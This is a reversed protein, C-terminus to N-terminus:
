ARSGTRRCASAKPRPAPSLRLLDQITMVRTAAVLGAETLVRVDKFAPLWKAVPDTLQLAGDEVLIMAAVSSLPKTMSYIRFITDPQMPKGAEIDMLGQADLQVVKGHRAVLTVVGATEKKDVMAQVIAKGRELQARTIGAEEPSARPLEAAWATGATWALLLALLIGSKSSRM